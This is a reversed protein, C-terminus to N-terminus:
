APSTPWEGITSLEKNRQLQDALTVIDVGDILLDGMRLFVRRHSDLFFDAAELRGQAEASVSAPLGNNGSGVGRWSVSAALGARVASPPM